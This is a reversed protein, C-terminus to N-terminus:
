SALGSVMFAAAFGAAFTWKRLSPTPSKLSLGTVGTAGGTVRDSGKQGVGKPRGGQGAFRFAHPRLTLRRGSIGLAFYGQRLPEPPAYPPGRFAQKLSKLRNLATRAIKLGIPPGAGSTPHNGSVR